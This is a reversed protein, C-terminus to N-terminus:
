NAAVATARRPKDELGIRIAPNAISTMPKPKLIAATGNWMHAGSTYSPDDDDMVAYMAAVTFAAASADNTRTQSCPKPSRAYRHYGAIKPIATADIIAPFAMPRACFFRLRM